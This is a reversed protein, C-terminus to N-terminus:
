HFDAALGRAQLADDARGMNASPTRAHRAGDASDFIIDGMTMARAVKYRAAIAFARSIILVRCPQM